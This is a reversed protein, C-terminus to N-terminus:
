HLEVARPKYEAFDYLFLIVDWLEEESLFDEWVPMASEWPGGESPMGPAGKAIRWFLFGERLMPLVGPDRFNSPIPNLGHAYMGEGKMLDGHCYFCNEYYVVRGNAVHERFADPDSTELKRYPNDVTGLSYETDHVTILDPPAHHVTRAFNPAVPTSTMQAHIRYVVASPIAIVVLALIPVYRRETLFAFLPKRVEETREPDTFVYAFLALSVIGMYIKVVSVPIPVEFGYRITVFIAFWWAFIWTLMRVKLFRLVLLVLLAAAIVLLKM